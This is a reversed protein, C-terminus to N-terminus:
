FGTKIGLGVTFGNTIFDPGALAGIVTLEIFRVDLTMSLAHQWLGDTHSTGLSASFLVPLNVGAELGFNVPIAPKVLPSLTFGINPKIYLFATEFPKVLAFFDFQVPRIVRNQEAAAKDFKLTSNDKLGGGRDASLALMGDAKMSYNTTAPVVPIHSIAAGAELIRWIAFRGEISVDIGPSKFIDGVSFSDGMAFPTWLAFDADATVKGSNGSAAAEFDLTGEKAYFVPFYISPAARIYLKNSLFRSSAGGGIEFFSGMGVKASGRKGNIAQIDGASGDGDAFKLLTQLSDRVEADMRTNLTMQLGTFLEVKISNLVRLSLTLPSGFLRARLDDSSALLPGFDGNAAGTINKIFGLPDQSTVTIVAPLGIEFLREGRMPGAVEADESEMWSPRTREREQPPAAPATAIPTDDATVRIGGNLFNEVDRSIADYDDQAYLFGASQGATCILFILVLLQKYFMANSRM